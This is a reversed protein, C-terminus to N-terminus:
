TPGERNGSVCYRQHTRSGAHMAIRPKTRREVDKQGGVLSDAKLINQEVSKFHETRSLCHKSQGRMYDGRMKEGKMKEIM